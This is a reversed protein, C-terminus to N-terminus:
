RRWSLNRYGPHVGPTLGQQDAIRRCLSALTAAEARTLASCLDREHEAAIRSLSTMATAGRGTLRLAYTRRDNPSTAREVLGKQELGDLLVVMRSPVVGLHEALNQQSMGPDSAIKRLVGADPPTLGLAAVREAFRGAAIAGVQALLFAVGGCGDGRKTSDKPEKQVGM